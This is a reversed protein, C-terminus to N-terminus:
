QNKINWPAACCNCDSTLFPVLITDSTTPYLKRFPFFNLIIYLIFNIREHSFKSHHLHSLKSRDIKSYKQKSPHPSLLVELLYTNVTLKNVPRKLLYWRYILHKGSTPIFDTLNQETIRLQMIQLLQLNTVYKLKISRALLSCSM